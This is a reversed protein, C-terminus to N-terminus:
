SRVTRKELQRAALSLPYSLIFYLVAVVFYVEFANQERDVIAKGLRLLDTYGIVSALATHKVLAVYQGFLPALVVRLSQPLVVWGMISFEHLGLTRAAERQGHGVSELGSRFVEGIYAGQYLTITVICVVIVAVGRIGLSSLGFYIFLLQILLPTGRFVETLAIVLWTLGPIRYYRVLAYLFGLVTSGLISWLTLLLTNLFGHWLIQANEAIALWGNM